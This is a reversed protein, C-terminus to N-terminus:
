DQEETTMPMAGPTPTVSVVTLQDLDGYGAGAATFVARRRAADPGQFTPVSFTWAHRGNTILVDWSPPAM